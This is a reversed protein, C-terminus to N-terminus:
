PLWSRLFPSVAQLIAGSPQNRFTLSRTPRTLAKAPLICSIVIRTLLLKLIFLSVPLPYPIGSPSLPVCSLTPLHSLSFLGETKPKILTFSHSGAFLEFPLCYGAM